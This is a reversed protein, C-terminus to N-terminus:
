PTTSEKSEGENGAPAEVGLIHVPDIPPRRMDAPYQTCGGCIGGIVPATPHQTCPRDPGPEALANRVRAAPVQAHTWGYPAISARVREITAQAQELEEALRDRDAEIEQAKAKWIDGRRWGRSANEYLEDLAQDNITSATYRVPSM